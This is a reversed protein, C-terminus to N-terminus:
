NRFFVWTNAPIANERVVAGTVLDGDPFRYVTSPLNWRKGCIDFASRRASVRGGQTYGVLVLTRLPLQGFDSASLEMGSRIRGDPFFYITTGAAYEDGAIEAASGDRGIEKIDDPPNECEDTSLVVRTGPPMGKWNVIESGRKRAGDPFIYVTEPSRYQDRAIDWASRGSSIVNADSSSFYAIAKAQEGASGYLVSALYPDASVLRGAKVDPDFLPQATLGLRIRVDRRAFLMGCRKRGRHSRRHWRNPAGYAVMSHSLVRADPIKYIRQLQGVLDALARYQDPTMHKNHYGVVEIGISGNDIDTKGEWMRRGSHLALRNRDIIRYVRGGEDVLYHAEGNRHLKRLSGVKPGETTHLIILDTRSRLPRERNKPSYYNTIYLAHVQGALLLCLSVM